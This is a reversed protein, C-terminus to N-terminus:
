SFELEGRVISDGSHAPDGDLPEQSVDVLVYDRLDVDDPVVFTGKKGDLEGLSVLASADATILWVERFGDSEDFDDISVTLTREGDSLETVEATGVADPHDPFADLTASAIEVPQQTRVFTWVGAIALVAAISAALAFLM